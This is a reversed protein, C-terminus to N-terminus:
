DFNITIKFYLFGLFVCVQTLMQLQQAQDKVIVSLMHPLPVKVRTNLHFSRAFRTEKRIADPQQLKFIIYMKSFYLWVKWHRNQRCRIFFNNKIYVLAFSIGWSLFVAAKCATAAVPMRTHASHLTWNSYRAESFSLHNFVFYNQAYLQYENILVCWCRAMCLTKFIVLRLM